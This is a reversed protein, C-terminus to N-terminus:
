KVPIRRSFSGTPWFGVTALKKGLSKEGVVGVGVVRAGSVGCRRLAIGQARVANSAAVPYNRYGESGTDVTVIFGM